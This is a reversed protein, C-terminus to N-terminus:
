ILNSDTAIEIITEHKNNQIIHRTGIIIYKGSLTKDLSEDYTRDGDTLAFKPVHLDVVSGSYLGFNGPMVLQIRKQLLNTFIAKRQFVYQETNQLFSSMKPNNQKIYDLDKRTFEFPYSVIRSDNMDFPTKNEKNVFNPLNKEKNTLDSSKADAPINKVRLVKQTRTVTDFGIFKGSYSGDRITELTDFSALVKIERAGLFGVIPDKSINKPIFNIKFTPFSKAINSIPIFNYGYKSEYFVFDAKNQNSVARKVIFNIADFPTLNPINLEQEVSTEVISEIKSKFFNQTENVFPVKLQDKLITEVIKSYTGKYNQYIKKQLSLIFDENVLHLVYVKSTSNTNAGDTIKYIAFEKKYEFIVENDEEKDIDIQIRSSGFERVNGLKILEAINLGDRVVISATMCPVFLNDFLNIEECRKIHMKESMTQKVLPNLVDKYQSRNFIQIM